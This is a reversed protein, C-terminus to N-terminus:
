ELFLYYVKRDELIYLIDRMIGFFDLVWFISM